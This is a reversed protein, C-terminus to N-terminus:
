AESGTSSTADFRAYQWCYALSKRASAFRRRKGDVRFCVCRKGLYSEVGEEIAQKYFAVVEPNEINKM